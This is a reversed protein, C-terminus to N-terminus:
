GSRLTWRTRREPSRVGLAFLPFTHSLLHYRSHPCTVIVVTMDELVRGEHVDIVAVDEVAIGTSFELVPDQCGPLFLVTLGLVFSFVPINGWSGNRM